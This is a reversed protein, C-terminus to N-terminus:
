DANRIAGVLSGALGAILIYWKGPLAQSTVLAVAAAVAWPLLDGVGKWLGALLALFVATFAFDLGWVVPNGLANGIVHGAVTASQWAAFSVLGSGLLFADDKGGRGLEGMTLAWSEDNLFFASGFAKLPSLRRFYPGLAAGMLLHRLNVVLTTLVIAAVPLPSVWLGLAVFQSAGAFVVGSMLMAEGLSLGSQRALVGFVLGYTFISLGLPLSRRAGALLGARSFRREPGHGEGESLDGRAV